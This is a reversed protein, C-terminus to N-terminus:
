YVKNKPLQKDIVVRVVNDWSSQFLGAWAQYSIGAIHPTMIIRDKVEKSIVLFPNDDEPPEKEYVDIALGQFKGKAMMDLIEKEDLVGGRSANLIIADDKMIGLKDRSFLNRTEDILPVHISLIDVLPLLEDLSQSKASFDEDIYDSQIMPDHFYVNAGFFNFARAVSKGINGFGVIGVNLGTIEKRREGLIMKRAQDYNGNSLEENCYPMGRLLSIAAGVCYQAISENSGGQVNAVSIGQEELEPRNLRDVGAGTVQIFKCSSDIFLKSDIPKGVAPIVLASADKIEINLIPDDPSLYLVRLSEPVNVGVNTFDEEPRLCIIKNSDM